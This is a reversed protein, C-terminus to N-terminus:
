SKLFFSLEFIGKAFVVKELGEEMEKKYRVIRRSRLVSKEESLFNGELIEVNKKILNVVFM